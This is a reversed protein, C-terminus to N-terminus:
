FRNVLHHSQITTTFQVDNKICDAINQQNKTLTTNAIFTKMCIMKAEEDKWGIGIGDTFIFHTLRTADDLQQSQGVEFDLNNRFFHKIVKSNEGFGLEMRENYRQLFHTSYKIVFREENETGYNVFQISYVIIGNSDRSKVYFVHAIGETKFHLVITWENNRSTKYPVMCVQQRLGKRLMQNFLIDGQVKSKRQVTQLDTLLENSIEQPTM